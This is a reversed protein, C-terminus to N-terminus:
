DDDATLDLVGVPNASDRTAAVVRARAKRGNALKRVHCTVGRTRALEARIGGAAEIGEVRPLVFVVYRAPDDALQRALLRRSAATSSARRWAACTLCKTVAIRASKM